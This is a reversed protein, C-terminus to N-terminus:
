HSNGSQKNDARCEVTKKSGKSMKKKWRYQMKKKWMNKFSDGLNESKFWTLKNVNKLLIREDQRYRADRHLPMYEPHEPQLSARHEM